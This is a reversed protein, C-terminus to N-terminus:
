ESAKPEEIKKAILDYYKQVWYGFYNIWPGEREGLQVQEMTKAARKDFSQWSEGVNYLTVILATDHRPSKEGEFGAAEYFNAAYNMYAGIINIAGKMTYKDREEETADPYIREIEPQMGDAVFPQIQGPGFSAQGDAGRFKVNVENVISEGKKGFAKGFLNIGKEGGQKFASRQNMSHEGMLAGLIAEPPVDYRKATTVIYHLLETPEGNEEFHRKFFVTNFTKETRPFHSDNQIQRFNPRSIERGNLDFAHVSITVVGLCWIIALLIRM